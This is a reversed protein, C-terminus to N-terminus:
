DTRTKDIGGINGQLQVQQARHLSPWVFSYYGGATSLPTFNQAFLADGALNLPKFQLKALSGPPTKVSDLTGTTVEVTTNGDKGLLARVAMSAAGARGTANGIGSERYHKSSSVANGPMNNQSLAAVCTALLFLLLDLHKM